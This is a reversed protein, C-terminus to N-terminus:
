AQLPFRSLLEYHSGGPQLVSRWLEVNEVAWSGFEVEILPQLAPGISSQVRRDDTRIRALTLHPTFRKEEAKATFRDSAQSIARHLDALQEGPAHIGTWVVRPRKLSPFAGMGAVTAPFVTHRQCAESVATCLEPLDASPVDGLFRLTVHWKKRSEWRIGPANLTRQLGVTGEQVANLVEDTPTIALFARIYDISNM